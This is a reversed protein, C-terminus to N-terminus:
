RRLTLKKTQENEVGFNITRYERHTDLSIVDLSTGIKIRVGTKRGVYSMTSDDYILQDGKYDYPDIKGIVGNATKIYIGSENIYTVKSSFLEGLHHEIYDAMKLHVSAAEAMDANYQKMTIHASEQKLWEYDSDIQEQFRTYDYLGDRQKKLQYHGIADEARRIPSTFRGIKREALAYHGISEDVDIRARKMSRLLISAAVSRVSQDSISKIVKTLVNGNLIDHMGTVKVGLKGIKEIADEVAEVDPKEHVRLTTPVMMYEAYCVGVLLMLNEILKEASKQSKSVFEIPHGSEDFEVEIDNEIDDFNVAGKDLRKQSLKKSISNLVLLDDVYDEYGEPVNDEELIENVDDYVMAMESNIVTDVFDYNIIEGGPTMEVLCSLTLRDVGPNLSCIGNSIIHPLQPIVSEILYASTSRSTIAEWLAMGPKIYHTVDAIHVGILYNGNDLYEISIADDRDKTRAGDISFVKKKRYDIRGKTEEESVFTPLANAEAMQEETFEEVIGYEAAILKLDADPDDKHGISHDYEVTYCSNQTHLGIRGVFRDGAVLPKDFDDPLVIKHKFVYNLPVLTIEGKKNSQVELTILGNKREVVEDVVAMTRGHITLKTPRIEVTDGNLADNFKDKKIRYRKGDAEVVGEGFKNTVLVGRVIYSEYENEAKLREYNEIYLKLPIDETEVIEEKMSQVNDKPLVRKILDAEFIGAYNVQTIRVIVTDGDIVKNEDKKSLTLPLDLKIDEPILEIGYEDKKVKASIISHKRKVVKDLNAIMRNGSRKSTPIVVVLDGDLLTRTEPGEIKYKRGDPLDILGEGHSNKLLSCQVFGLEYPFERWLDEATHYLTGEIEMKKFIMEFDSYNINNKPDIIEAVELLSFAKGKNKEKQFFDGIREEIDTLIVNM